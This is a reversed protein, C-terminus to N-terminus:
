SAQLCIKPRAMRFYKFILILLVLEEKSAKLFFYNVNKGEMDSVVLAMFLARKVIVVMQM